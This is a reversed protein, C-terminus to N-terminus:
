EAGDERTMKLYIAECRMLLENLPMKLTAAGAAALAISALLSDRPSCNDLAREMGNLAVDEVVKVSYEGYDIDGDVSPPIGDMNAWQGVSM